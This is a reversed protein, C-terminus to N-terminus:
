PCDYSCSVAGMSFTSWNYHAYDFTSVYVLGQCGVFVGGPNGPSVMLSDVCPPCTGQAGTPCFTEAVTAPGGWTGAQVDYLWVEGHDAIMWFDSTTGALYGQPIYAAADLHSFNMPTGLFDHIPASSWEGTEQNVLYYSSGATVFLIDSTLGMAGAPVASISDIGQAPPQTGSTGLADWIAQLNAVGTVASQTADYFALFGDWVVIAGDGLNWWGNPIWDMADFFAPLNTGNNCVGDCDEDLGDCVENTPGVDGQCPGWQNGSCQQVGFQCEGQDSVGCDRTENNTCACDATDSLDTLGDCDNDIGDNCSLEVTGGPCICDGGQCLLGNPGCSQQICDSDACDTLSDGDNDIGDGCNGEQGLCDLSQACDTDSCDTDGDCDNDVGDNCSLEVTGGPCICDGGQCLLGNPGCSQQVCDGDECDTLSDGDNDIGDGCNGEQGLCDPSQACDADSCDTDGDCDNDVGDSCLEQAGPNILDDGDECDTGGCSQAPYGDTDVDECGSPCSLEDETDTLGDCNNDVGDGCKEAAGPSVKSDKDKCDTGGCEIDQFGDHDEDHCNQSCEEQDEMDTLGDGDDDIGNDCIESKSVNGNQNNSNKGSRSNAPCGVVMSLSFGVFGAIITTRITHGIGELCPM